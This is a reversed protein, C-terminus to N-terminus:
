SVLSEKFAEGTEKGNKLKWMLCILNFWIKVQLETKEDVSLAQIGM